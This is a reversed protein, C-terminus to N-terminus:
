KGAPPPPPPPPPPAVLLQNISPNSIDTMEKIMEDNLPKIREQIREMVTPMFERMIVPTMDLMHEGASSSYFAIIGDVDSRSLHKQYLSSMDEIMEDAGYLSMAQGVFKSMIKATAQQREPTTSSMEPHDKQLDKMTANFQQQMLGPMMQTVAALQQKVRMLEFLRALQEKTPQQDLPITVATTTIAPQDAPAQALAALPAMALSLGIGAVYKIVSRM